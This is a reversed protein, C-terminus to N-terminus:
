DSGPLVFTDFLEWALWLLGAVALTGLVVLVMMLVVAAAGGVAVQGLV